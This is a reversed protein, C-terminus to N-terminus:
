FMSKYIEYKGWVFGFTECARLAVEFMLNFAQSSQM